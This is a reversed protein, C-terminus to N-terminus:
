APREHYDFQSRPFFSLSLSFDAIVCRRLKDVTKKLLRAMESPNGTVAFGSDEMISLKAEATDSQGSILAVAHGM